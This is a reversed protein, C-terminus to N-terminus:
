KLSHFETDQLVKLEEYAKWLRPKKFKKNTMRRKYREEICNSRRTRGRFEKVVM